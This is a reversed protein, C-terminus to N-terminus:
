TPLQGFKENPGIEEWDETRRVLASTSPLFVLPVNALKKTRIHRDVTVSESQTVVALGTLLGLGLALAGGRPDIMPDCFASAAAGVGTVLGGEKLVHQVAEWVPTDKLVSRMHIPNDGVFWVADAKHVIKAASKEMAETRRMVMLAEVEVGLREGWSLASAVLVEPQEFADATPLVVVRKAKVEKLLRADLEDHLSFAGGGQLAIIGNM